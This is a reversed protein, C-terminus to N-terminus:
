GSSLPAKQASFDAQGAAAAAAAEAVCLAAATTTPTRGGSIETKGSRARKAVGGM